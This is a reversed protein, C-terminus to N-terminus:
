SVKKGKASKKIYPADPDLERLERIDRELQALETILRKRKKEKLNLIFKVRGHKHGGLSINAEKAWKRVTRVDAEFIEAAEVATLDPDQALRHLCAYKNRHYNKTM